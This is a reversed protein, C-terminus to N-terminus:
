EPPPSDGATRGVNAGLFQSAPLAPSDSKAQDKEPKENSSESAQESTAEPTETDGQTDNEAFYAQIVMRIEGLYNKATDQHGAHYANDAENAKEKVTLIVDRLDM